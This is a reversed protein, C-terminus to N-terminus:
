DNLIQWSWVSNWKSHKIIKMKSQLLILNLVSEGDSDKGFSLIIINLEFLKASEQCRQPISQFTSTTGDIVNCIWSESSFPTKLFSECVLPEKLLAWITHLWFTPGILILTSSSSIWINFRKIQFWKVLFIINRERKIPNLAISQGSWSRHSWM